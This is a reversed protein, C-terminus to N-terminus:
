RRRGWLWLIVASLIYLYVFNLIHHFAFTFGATEGAAHRAWGLLWGVYHRAPGVSDIAVSLVFLVGTLLLTSWRPRLYDRLRRKKQAGPLEQESVLVATSLKGHKLMLAIPYLVGLAPLPDDGHFVDSIADTHKEFMRRLYDKVNGPHAVAKLQDLFRQFQRRKEDAAPIRKFEEALTSLEALKEEDHAIEELTALLGIIPTETRKEYDIEPQEGIPEGIAVQYLLYPYDVNAAISQPLGGFFRPNVEILYPPGGEPIRFDVQAIGHWRLPALLKVAAEEAESHHVTERLAGAGTGRPFARINRYTMSAVRRGQDFLATVCYDDGAVFEQVLPYEAATLGFGEVFERFTAVLEEPTEVKRLGVGAAAKRVKVFVPMPLEPVQRYLEGIENFQWTRPIRLGREQALTALRGKDDTLRINEITTVPLKVTPEFRERHEALVFTEKHVPMLVYPENDDPALEKVKEAMFDVFAEPEGSPSPYQFHGRCYKSFFCPAFPSEEGCFVEIGRQGLSRVIALSNWGRGYTVIVRAM